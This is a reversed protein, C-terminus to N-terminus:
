NRVLSRSLLSYIASSRQTTVVSINAIYDVQSTITKSIKNLSISVSHGHINASTALVTGTKLLLIEIPHKRTVIRVGVEKQKSCIFQYKINLNAVLRLPLLVTLNGPFFKRIRPTTCIKKWIISAEKSKVTNLLAVPQKENRQKIRNLRIVSNESLEACLIGWVTDCPFLIIGGQQLVTAAQNIILATNSYDLNLNSLEPGLEM